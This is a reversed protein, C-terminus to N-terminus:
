NVLPTERAAAWEVFVAPQVLAPNIPLKLLKQLEPNAALAPQEEL